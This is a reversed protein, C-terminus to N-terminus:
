INKLMIFIFDLVPVAQRPFAPGILHHKKRRKEGKREKGEGPM